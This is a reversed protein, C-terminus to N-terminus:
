WRRASWCAAGRGALTVVFARRPADALDTPGRRRHRCRRPPSCCASPARTASSASGSRRPSRPRRRWSRAGLRGGALRRRRAGLLPSWGAAVSRPASSSRASCCRTSAAASRRDRRAQALPAAGAPARACRRSGPATSRPSPRSRSRCSAISGRRRGTRLRPDAVAHAPHHHASVAVAVPYLFDGIAGLAVGVGAIIFSFEGIQALSMGAQVSLASARAPSSSARRRRRRDQRGRRGRHVGAGGDLARRDAGPDILMGVSVFFIAAFVDRVPQVLHEVESRSARSPSWRAPSSPASRWRTASRGAGAARLAFCSGSAPSSPRRPGIRPTVVM